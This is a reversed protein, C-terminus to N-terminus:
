VGRSMATIHKVHSISCGTLKATMAISYGAKRLALIRERIAVDAKRGIVNGESVDPNIL